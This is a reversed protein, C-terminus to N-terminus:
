VGELIEVFTQLRTKVQEFSIIEHEIEILIEPIGNEALKNKIDPYYCMHPPCYKIMLSLIGKANNKQAMEIIYDTWDTRYDGKTPCPPTKQMYRKGLAEYPNGDKQVQNAFYKSGVFMDDDVITMGIEEIIDLLQTNITQCLGGYTIVKIRDDKSLNQKRTNLEEVVKELLINNLDKPMLMSSHVVALMEKAKIIGPNERRLDYIISLIDRNKNYIDIANNISDDTIINGSIKELGTKFRKFEELLYSYSVKDDYLAPLSLYEIYSLKTCQELLFPLGQAQLCMRNVVIGDIFDLKEKVLDDIFSRTLGCNFTALHSHGLTVAENSRWSIVPLMGSAFVIEEPIHMAFCSIIKKDNDTKWKKLYDYPNTSVEICQEIPKKDM